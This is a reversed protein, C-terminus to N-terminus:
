AEPAAQALMAVDFFAPATGPLCAGKEGRSARNRAQVPVWSSGSADADRARGHPKSSSMIQLEDHLEVMKVKANLVHRSDRGEEDLM